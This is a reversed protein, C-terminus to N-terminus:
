RLWDPSNYMEQKCTPIYSSDIIELCQGLKMTIVKQVRLVKM